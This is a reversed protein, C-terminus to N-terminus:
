LYLEEVVSSFYNERSLDLWVFGKPENDVVIFNALEFDIALPPLLPESRGRAM